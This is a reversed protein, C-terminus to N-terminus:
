LNGYIQARNGLTEAEDQLESPLLMWLDGGVVRGLFGLIHHRTARSHIIAARESKDAARDGPQLGIIFALDDILAGDDIGYERLVSDFKVQLAKRWRGILDQAEALHEHSLRYCDSYHLLRNGM